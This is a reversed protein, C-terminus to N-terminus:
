GPRQWDSDPSTIEVFGKITLGLSAPVGLMNISIINPFINEAKGAFNNANFLAPLHWYLRYHKSLLWGILDKSLQQRDNEVYLLPSHRALTDAAGALVEREMGEVDIKILHCAPLRLSDLTLVAVEDGPGASLGVSGFNGGQSYDVRPVSMKGDSAGLGANYTSVNAHLNLALNGCLMQYLVRQPEFALVRGRPGVAQALYVTHAGINAGADVVTMGPKIIQRFLETEGESFEGYVDLSRGVYMDNAFYMM